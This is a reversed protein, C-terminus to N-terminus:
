KPSFADERKQSKIQLGERRLYTALQLYQPGTETLTHLRLTSRMHEAQICCFCNSITYYTSVEKRDMDTRLLPYIDINCFM